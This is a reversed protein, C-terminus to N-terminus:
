YTDYINELIVKKKEWGLPTRESVGIVKLASTKVFWVYPAACIQETQKRVTLTSFIGVSITCASSDDETLWFWAVSFLSDRIKLGNEETWNLWETTNSEKHGWSNCCMLGALRDGVGPTVWVWTWQSPSAMWGGWGRDDGEGGVKLREWCWPREWSKTHPPWLIPTESETDTRGIFIWSQDGKPHVSQIEKSDLLSKLIKELVM